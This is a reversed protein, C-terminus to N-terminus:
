GTLPYLECALSCGTGHTHKSEWYPTEVQRLVEGGKEDRGWLVDVVKERKGEEAAIMGEGNFPCHGGKILVWKPGLSGVARAIGELDSVKEVPLHGFGADALLLRAEPLNPTLVTALPVLKERLLSLSTNPLLPSGTTAVMVPDVVVTKLKYERIVEAVAEITGASAMMGKTKCDTCNLGEFVHKSTSLSNVLRSLM